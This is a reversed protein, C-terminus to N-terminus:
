PSIILKLADDALGARQRDTQGETGRGREMSALSLMIILAYYGYLNLICKATVHYPCDTMYVSDMVQVLCEYYIVSISVLCCQVLFHCLNICRLINVATRDFLPLILLLWPILHDKTINLSFPIAFLDNTIFFIISSYATIYVIFLRTFCTFIVSIHFERVGTWVNMAPSFVCLLCYIFVSLIFFTFCCSLACLDCFSAPFYITRYECGCSEYM